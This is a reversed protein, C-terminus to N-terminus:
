EYASATEVAWPWESLLEADPAWRSGSPSVSASGCACRWVSSFATASGCASSYTEDSEFASLFPSEGAMSWVSQSSSEKGM